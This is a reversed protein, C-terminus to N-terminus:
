AAQANAVENMLVDIDLRRACQQAEDVEEASLYLGDLTRLVDVRDVASVEPHELVFTLQAAAGSRRGQAAKLKAHVVVSSLMADRSGLSRAGCGFERVADAAARLDGSALATLALLAQAALRMVPEAAADALVREAYGHAAAMRGAQHAVLGLNGLAFSRSGHIGHLECTRLSEELYRQASPLDNQARYLNGLNGLCLALGRQNGHRRHIAIADLYLKAAKGFDGRSKAIMASTNSLQAVEREAGDRQAMELAEDVSLQAEALGGQQVLPLALANLADRLEIADRSARAAAVAERALGIATDLDGCRYRLSALAL